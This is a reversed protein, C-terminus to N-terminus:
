TFVGGVLCAVFRPAKEAVIEVQQPSEGLEQIFIRSTSGSGLGLLMGDEVFELARRAAMRKADDQTM